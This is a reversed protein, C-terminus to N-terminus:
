RPLRSVVGCAIRAGAAGSPQSRLDDPDAHLVVAKGVVSHSGPAITLDDTRMTMQIRGNSSAEVNGLDGAHSATEGPGGHPHNGPNFHGGASSADTASCDGVEHVHFGHVGPPVDHLDARVELTGDGLETFTVVGSANSGSRGELTAVARAGDGDMTKCGTAALVATAAFIVATRGIDIM